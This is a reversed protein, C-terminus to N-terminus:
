SRYAEEVITVCEASLDDDDLATEYKDKIHDEGREVEEIIARDGGKSFASRLDEFRRHMGAMTTGDDEPNGGISRVHEQLRGVLQRRESGMDQFLQEFETSRANEASREYGDASDITTAILGNIVRIDHDRDNFM